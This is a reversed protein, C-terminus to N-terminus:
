QDVEVRGIGASRELVVTPDGALSETTSVGLGGQSRGVLDVEGIGTTAEVEAGVGEPLRVALEGLGISGTVTTGDALDEVDRLDITLSGMLLSAGQEAQAVTTPREVREGIGGVPVRFPMVATLVVLATLVIGATLLGAHMGRRANAMLAVGVVVLAAPLVVSWRLETIGTADLLWLVGLLALLVGLVLRGIPLATEPTREDTATASPAGPEPESTM